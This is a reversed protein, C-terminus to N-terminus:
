PELGGLLPTAFATPEKVHRICGFKMICLAEAHNDDRYEWGLGDCHRKAQRKWWDRRRTKVVSAPAKGIGLVTSRWATPTVAHQEVRLDHCVEAIMGQLYSLFEDAAQNTKGQPGFRDEYVVLEARRDLLLGRLWTRAEWCKTSWRAADLRKSGGVPLASARSDYFAWGFASSPDLGVVRAM